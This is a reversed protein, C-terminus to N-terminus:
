RGKGGQGQHPGPAHQFEEMAAIRRQHEREKELDPDHAQESRDKSLVRAEYRQRCHAEEDDTLPSLAADEDIVMGLAAGPRVPPAPPAEPLLHAVPKKVVFHADCSKCHISKGLFKEPVHGKHHCHPCVVPIEGHM